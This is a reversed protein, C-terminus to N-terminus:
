SLMWWGWGCVDDWLKQMRVASRQAGYKGQGGGELDQQISSNPKHNHFLSEIVVVFPRSIEYCEDFEDLFIKTVGLVFDILWAIADDFLICFALVPM